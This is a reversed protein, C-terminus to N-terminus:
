LTNESHAEMNSHKQYKFLYLHTITFLYPTKHHILTDKM